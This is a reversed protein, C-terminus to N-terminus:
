YTIRGAVDIQAAPLGSCFWLCSKSTSHRNDIFWMEMDVSREHGIGTGM